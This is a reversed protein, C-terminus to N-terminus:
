GNGRRISDLKEVAREWNHHDGVFKARSGNGYVYETLSQGMQIFLRRQTEDAEILRKQDVLSMSVKYTTLEPGEDLCSKEDYFKSEVEQRVNDCAEDRSSIKLNRFDNDRM